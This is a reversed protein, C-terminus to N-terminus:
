TGDGEGRMTDREVHEKARAVERAVDAPLSRRLIPELLWRVAPTFELAITRTLRTGGTVPECVFSASFWSIRRAIRNRPAPVYGIDVREGPTLRARQVVKPAPGPLGPLTPRFRFECVEGRRRVWDIRGIKGDVGAYGEFDMVFELFREPSCRVFRSM